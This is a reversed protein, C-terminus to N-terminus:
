LTTPDIEGTKFRPTTGSEKLLNKQSKEVVAGFESKQQQRFRADPQRMTAGAPRLTYTTAGLEKTGPLINQRCHLVDISVLVPLIRDIQRLSVGSREMIQRRTREFSESQEDSALETLCLYVALADPLFTRKDFAQRILRLAPKHQWCYPSARLQRSQPIIQGAGNQTELAAVAKSIGPEDM